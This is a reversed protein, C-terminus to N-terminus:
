PVRVRLVLSAFVRFLYRFVRLSCSSHRPVTSCRLGFSRLLVVASRYLSSPVNWVCVAARLSFLRVVIGHLSGCRLPLRVLFFSRFLACLRTNDEARSPVIYSRLARVRVLSNRCVLPCRVGGSRYCRFAIVRVSVSGFVVLTCPVRVVSVTGSVVIVRLASSPVFVLSRAVFFVLSFRLTSVVSYSHRRHCPAGLDRYSVHGVPGSRIYVTTRDTLVVRLAVWPACRRIRARVRAVFRWRVHAYVCVNFRFVFSPPAFNRYMGPVNM